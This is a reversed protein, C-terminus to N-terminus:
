KDDPPGFHGLISFREAVATTGDPRRLELRDSQTIAAAIAPLLTPLVLAARGPVEIADFVTCIHDPM